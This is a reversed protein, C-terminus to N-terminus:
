VLDGEIKGEEFSKVNKVEFLALFHKLLCNAKYHKDDNDRFNEYVTKFRFSVYRQKEIKLFPFCKNFKFIYREKERLDYIKDWKNPILIRTHNLLEIEIFESNNLNM